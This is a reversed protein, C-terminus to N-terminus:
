RQDDQNGGFEERYWEDAVFGGPAISDQSIDIGRQEICDLNLLAGTLANVAEAVERDYKSTTTEDIGSLVLMAKSIIRDRLKERTKQETKREILKRLAKMEKSEM